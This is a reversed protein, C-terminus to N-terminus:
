WHAGVTFRFTEGLEAAPEFGFDATIKDYRIGCGFTLGSLPSLDYIMQTNYGGRVAFTADPGVTRSYEVGTKAYPNGYYPLAAEFAFIWRSGWSRADWSAGFDTELPLNEDEETFKEKGGVNRFDFSLSLNPLSVPRFIAGGDFAIASANNDYINESIAKVAGGVMLNGVWPGDRTESSLPRIANPTDWGGGFYDREDSKEEADLDFSRAYGLAVADSQPAFSGVTQNTNTVLPLSQESFRTFSVGLAGGLWRVPMDYVVYDDHFYDLYQSFTYSFEPSKAQALGAPNWYMAEPGEAVAGYAEGMGLARAGQGIALFEGANGGINSQFARAPAALVALALVGACAARM